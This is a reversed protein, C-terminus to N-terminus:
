IFASDWCKCILLLAIIAISSEETSCKYNKSELLVLKSHKLSVKQCCIFQIITFAMFAVLIIIKAATNSPTGPLLCFTRAM